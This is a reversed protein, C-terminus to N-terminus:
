RQGGGRIFGRMPKGNRMSAVMNKIKLYACCGWRNM